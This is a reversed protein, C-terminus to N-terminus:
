FWRRQAGCSERWFLYSIKGKGRRGRIPPNDRGRKKKKETFAESFYNFSGGEGFGGSMRKWGKERRRGGGGNRKVSSYTRFPHVPTRKKKVKGTLM